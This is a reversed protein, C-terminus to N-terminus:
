GVRIQLSKVDLVVPVQDLFGLHGLLGVYSKDGPFDKDMFGVYSNLTITGITLEVVFFYLDVAGGIAGVGQKLKGSRVKLGLLDATDAGFVCYAAGSDILATLLPTHARDRTLKLDVFPFYRVHERPFATSPPPDPGCRYRTYEIIETM